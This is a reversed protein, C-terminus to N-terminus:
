ASRFGMEAAIQDDTLETRFRRACFNAFRLAKEECDKATNYDM